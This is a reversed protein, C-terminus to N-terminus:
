RDGGPRREGEGEGMEEAERKFREYFARGKRDGWEEVVALAVARVRDWKMMDVMRRERGEGVVRSRKLGYSGEGILGDGSSISKWEVAGRVIARGEEEWGELGVKKM